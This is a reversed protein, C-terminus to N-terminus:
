RLLLMKRTVQKEGQTLRYLYIGSAVATGADNRADWVVQHAGPTQAVDSLVRVQQGLQNFIVLSVKANADVAAISYRITTTPNFPNPYNQELAFEQPVGVEDEIGVPFLMVDNSDRPEIKFRSFTYAHFGRLDGMMGNMIAGGLNGEYQASLDDVRVGGSGDDIVFEGFNNMSDPLANTVTVNQVEVFVSEYTEALAGGTAIDGTPLVIPNWPGFGATVLSDFTADIQTWGFNEEVQGIVEILDGIQYSTSVNRVFIGSWAAEADQIFYGAFQNPASMVVGSIITNYGLYPSADNSYGKTDQIDAIFLGNDRVAYRLIAGTARSTDQPLTTTNADTDTASIFYRLGAADSQAPITGSWSDGNPTMPVTQFAGEDVSYHIVASTITTNDTIDASITVDDMSTVLEPSRSDNSIAPPGGLIIVDDFDRPNISYSGVFGRVFGTVDVVTGNVPWSYTGNDFRSRYFRFYDDMFTAIATSDSISARNSSVSNDIVESNAIRVFQSEWQEAQQPSSLDETSLVVPSPVTGITELVVPVLPDTLIALQTFGQFENVVGTFRCIDGPLLNQFDTGTITTDNQIIFMGNWPANPFNPDVVFSGWRAGVFTSRVDSTIMARVEITDGLLPSVDDVIPDSVFQVEEVTKLPYQAFISVSFLITLYILVSRM